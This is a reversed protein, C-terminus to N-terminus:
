AMGYIPGEQLPGAGERAVSDAAIGILVILGILLALLPADMTTM